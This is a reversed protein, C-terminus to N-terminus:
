VLNKEYVRYTKVLRLNLKDLANRIKANDELIYNVELKVGKPSLANFLHLYLLADLGMNQYEPLVALDILRYRRARKAETLVKIFGFPFMKGGIRKFVINPDPFGLAFGVPRGADEVFWIADVDLVQKLKKIMDELVGRDVPVYGWNDKLAINTIEWISVAESLLKKKNIRRMSINHKEALLNKGFTKFRDPIQYGEQADAEYALLDKAKNYGLKIIFDNYYAFNYPAMFVPSSCFGKCLFGWSEAIPHIPGRVVNMGKAKLWEESKSMLAKTVNIDKICEFAGFLGTRSHYYQNFKHDVYVLNRGIVTDGDYALLLIFDSNSLIPNHDQSYSKIEDMWLPPVWYPNHKYLKEPFFVFRKLDKRNKVEEIRMNEGTM